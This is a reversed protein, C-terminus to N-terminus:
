VTAPTWVLLVQTGQPQALWHLQAGLERARQRMNHLGRGAAVGEPIGVGDDTISIRLQQQVRDFHAEMTIHTAQAHKLANNIAEQVIRLIQLLSREPLAPLTELSM